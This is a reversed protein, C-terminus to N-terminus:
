DSTKSRHLRDLAQTIDMLDCYRNIGAAIKEQSDAVRNMESALREIAFHDALIAGIGLSPQHGPAPGDARPKKTGFYAVIIATMGGAGFLPGLWAFAEALTVKDM